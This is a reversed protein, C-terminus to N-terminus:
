MRQSNLVAPETLDAPGIEADLMRVLRAVAKDLLPRTVKDHAAELATEMDVDMAYGSAKRAFLARSSDTLHVQLDTTMSIRTYPVGSMDVGDRSTARVTCNVFTASDARRARDRLPSQSQEASDVPEFGATELRGRILGALADGRRIGGDVQESVVVLVRRVNLETVPMDQRPPIINETRTASPQNKAAGGANELRALGVLGFFAAVVGSFVILSVWVRWTGQPQPLISVPESDHKRDDPSEPETSLLGGCLPCLGNDASNIDSGCRPCTAM